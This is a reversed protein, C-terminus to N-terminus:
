ILTTNINIYNSKYYIYFPNFNIIDIMKLKNDILDNEMNYYIEDPNNVKFKRPFVLEVNKIFDLGNNFILSEIETEFLSTIFGNKNYLYKAVLLKVKNDLDSTSNFESILFDKNNIILNIKILNDTSFNDSNDNIEFVYKDYFHNISITDYFAQTVNINPAFLKRDKMVSFYNELIENGGNTNILVDKVSIDIFPLHLAYFKNNEHYIFNKQRQELQLYKEKSYYEFLYNTDNDYIQVVIENIPKILLCYKDLHKVDIEQEFNNGIQLNMNFQNCKFIYVHDPNVNLVKIFSKRNAFDYNLTLQINNVMRLESFKPIHSDLDIYIEKRISFAIYENRRKKYYFPSFLKITTAGNKLYTYEPFFLNKDFKDTLINKTCTQTIENNIILTNYVFYNSTTGFYKIDIYPKTTNTFHNEFDNLTTINDRGTIRNNIGKSIEQFSQFNKGGSGGQLSLVKLSKKTSVKYDKNTESIIDRNINNLSFDLKSVNPHNYYEGETTKIEIILYEGTKSEVGNIGNGSMIYINDDTVRIFVDNSSSTSNFTNYKLNMKTLNYVNSIEDKHYTKMAKDIYFFKKNTDTQLERKWVNIEYIKKISVDIKFENLQFEEDIYSDKLNFLYFNRKYQKLNNYNIMYIFENQSLPNEIRNIDLNKIGNNNIQKAIIGNKSYEIEVLDEIYFDVGNSNIPSGPTISYKFFENKYVHEFNVEEIIFYVPITSPKCLQIEYNTVDAHFFLSNINDATSPNIQRILTNLFIKNDVKAHTILNAINALVGTKILSLNKINLDNRILNNVKNLEDNFTNHILPDLNEESMESM